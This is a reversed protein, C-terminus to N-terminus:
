APKVLSQGGSEVVLQMAEPNTALFNALSLADVLQRAAFGWQSKLKEDLPSADIAKRLMTSYDLYSRTAMEIRPDGRWPESSFRKDQVAPTAASEETKVAATVAPTWWSSVQKFYDQQLAALNRTMEQWAVPLNSGEDAGTALSETALPMKLAAPKFGSASFGGRLFSQMLETQTRFLEGLWQAADPKSPTM